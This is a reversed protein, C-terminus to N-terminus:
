LSSFTETTRSHCQHEQSFNDPRDFLVSQLSVPVFLKTFFSTIELLKTKQQMNKYMEKQPAMIPVIKHKFKLCM